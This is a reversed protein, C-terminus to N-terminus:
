CGLADKYSQGVTLTKGGGIMGDAAVADVHQFLVEHYMGQKALEKLVTWSRATKLAAVAEARPKAEGELWTKIWGCAVAAVVRAGLQYRDRPMGETNLQARDFGPPLPLDVLMEDIVTDSQDPRVISAPMAGLWEDVSAGRLEALAERVANGRLEMVYGDQKWLATLDDQTYAFIRVKAGQLDVGEQEGASAKRDDVWASLTGGRWHLDVRRSGDEFTMEGEGVAFQDARTVKWDGVLLRPVSEAVKVLPAAWARETGRDSPAFFVILAAATAALVVGLAPVVRRRYRPPRRRAVVPQAVIEERLADLAGDFDLAEDRLPDARRLTDELSM